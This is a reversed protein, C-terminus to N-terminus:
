VASTSASESSLPVPETMRSVLSNMLAMSRRPSKRTSSMEELALSTVIQALWRMTSASLSGCVVGSGIVANVGLVGVDPVSTRPTLMVINAPSAPDTPPM